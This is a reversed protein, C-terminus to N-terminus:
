LYLKMPRQLNINCILWPSEIKVQSINFSRIFLEKGCFLSSWPYRFVQFFSIYSVFHFLPYSKCTSVSYMLLQVALSTEPKVNKIM